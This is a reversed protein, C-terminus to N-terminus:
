YTELPGEAAHKLWDMANLPNFNRPDLQLQADAENKYAQLGGLVPTNPDVQQANPDAAPPTAAPKDKPDPKDGPTMGKGAPHPGGSPLQTRNVQAKQAGATQKQSM